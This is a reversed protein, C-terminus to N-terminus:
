RWIDSHDKSSHNCRCGQTLGDCALPGYLVARSTEADVTPTLGHRRISDFIALLFASAPLWTKDYDKLSSEELVFVISPQVKGSPASIMIQLDIM